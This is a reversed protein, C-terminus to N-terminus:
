LRSSGLLIAQAAWIIRIVRDAHRLGNRLRDHQSPPLVEAFGKEQQLLRLLLRGCLHPYCWM